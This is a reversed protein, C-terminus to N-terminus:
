AGMAALVGRVAEALVSAQRPDGRDLPLPQGVPADDWSRSRAVDVEAGQWISYEWLGKLAARRVVLHRGESVDIVLAPGLALRARYADPRSGGLADGIEALLRADASGWALVVDDGHCPCEDSEGLGVSLDVGVDKWEVSVTAPASYREVGPGERCDPVVWFECLCRQCELLTRGIDPSMRVPDDGLPTASAARALVLEGAARLAALRSTPDYAQRLGDAALQRVQAPLADRVADPLDALGHAAHLMAVRPPHPGDELLRQTGYPVVLESAIELAEVPLEGAAVTHLTDFYGAGNVILVSVAWEVSELYRAIGHAVRRDAVELARRAEAVSDWWLGPTDITLVVCREGDVLISAPM